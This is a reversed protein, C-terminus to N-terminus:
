VGIRFFDEAQPAEKQPDRQTFLGIIKSQPLSADLLKLSGPRGVTLPVVTGPFIVVSRVPLIPLTDPIAPRNPDGEGGRSVAIVPARQEQKDEAQAPEVVPEQRAIM